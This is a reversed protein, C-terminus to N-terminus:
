ASAFIFFFLGAISLLAFVILSKSFRDSKRKMRSSQVILGTVSLLFQVAMLAIAWGTLAAGGARVTGYSPGGGSSGSISVVMFAVLFVVWSIIVLVNIARVVSDAGRRRAKKIEEAM